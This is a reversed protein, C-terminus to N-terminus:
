MTLMDKGRKLGAVYTIDQKRHTVYPSSNVPCATILTSTPNVHTLRYQQQERNEEASATIVTEACSLQTDKM